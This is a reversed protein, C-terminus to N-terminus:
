WKIVDKRIVEYAANLVSKLYKTDNLRNINIGKFNTLILMAIIIFGLYTLGEKEKEM